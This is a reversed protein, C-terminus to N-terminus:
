SDTLISRGFKGEGQPLHTMDAQELNLNILTRAVLNKGERAEDYVNQPVRARFTTSCKIALNSKIASDAWDPNPMTATLDDQPFYDLDMDSVKWEAMMDNLDTLADTSDTANATDSYEIVGIKQLAADITEQVTSM